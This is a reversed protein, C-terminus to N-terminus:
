MSFSTCTNMHKHHYNFQRNKKESITVIELRRTANILIIHVARGLVLALSTMSPLIMFHCNLELYYRFRGRLLSKKWCVGRGWWDGLGEPFELGKLPPLAHVHIQINEPVAFHLFYQYILLTGALKKGRTLRQIITHARVPSHNKVWMSRCERTYISKKINFTKDGTNEGMQKTASTVQLSTNVHKYQHVIRKGEGKKNQAGKKSTFFDGGGGRM